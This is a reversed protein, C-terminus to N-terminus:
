KRFISMEKLKRKMAVIERKKLLKLTLWALGSVFLISIIIVPLYNFKKAKAPVAPKEVCPKCPGGCDIGTEDYDQKGDFCYWCYGLESEKIVFHIDLGKEFSPMKIKALIKNTAKDKVYYHVVGCEFGKEVKLEKYVVCDQEESYNRGDKCYCIRKQKGYYTIKGALLEKWSARELKCESWNECYALVCKEIPVVCAQSESPKHEESPCEPNVKVCRREMTGNICPGWESCNWEDICKIVTVQWEVRNSAEGDSVEAKISYSGSAEKFNFGCEVEGVDQCENVENDNLYFKMILSDNDADRAKAYFVLSDNEQIAISLDEPKYAIIEPAHNPTPTPPPTPPPPQAPALTFPESYIITGNYRSGLVFPVIKIKYTGASYGSLDISLSTSTTNMLFSQNSLNSANVLFLDYYVPSLASDQGVFALNVIYGSISISIVNAKGCDVLKLPRANEDYWNGSNNVCYINTGNYSENTTGIISFNLYPPTTYGPIVYYSDNFSDNWTYNSGYGGAVFASAKFYRCDGPNLGLLAELISCNTIGLGYCGQCFVERLGGPAWGCAPNASDNVLILDINTVGDVNVIQGDATINYCGVAPIAYIEEYFDEGNFHMPSYSITYNSIAEDFSYLEDKIGKSLFNNLFISNNASSNDVYLDYYTSNKIINRTLINNSSALLIIGYDNSSATNNTLINNNSWVVVDIGYTNSNVINNILTNNSSFYGLYIGALNNSNVTNNTFISNSVGYLYIGEFFDTIVCNKITNNTKGSLDIGHDAGSDDGDIKHGQCDFIKNSFNEPNNICTGAFNTIDATLLVESCAPDNLQATCNSCSDCYCPPIGLPAFISFSTINAYVVNNTTDVGNITYFGENYWSDNYKWIRLSAESVSDIESEDYSINLFLWSDASNNTANVYKSINYWGAPDAAPASANRLAIDKGEFSVIPGINLNTIINGISDSESYFDWDSNNRATNNILINSSSSSLYIGYMNSNATNNTLINSSTLLRIGAGNFNFESNNITHNGGGFIVLGFPFGGNNYNATSNIITINNSGVLAIGIANGSSTLNQILLNDSFFIRVANNFLTESGKVTVNTINSGTANCMILDSFEQNVLNVPYNYVGCLRDGSCTNNEFINNLCNEGGISCEELDVYVNETNNAITSNVAGCVNIGRSNNNAINNTVINDSSSYGLYIGSGGNSNATNSILNNNSSSGLYIGDESNSSATNNTLTNNSSSDLYIGNSNSSATNNILTNNSSYSLDIGFNNNLSANNNILTNNSSYSLLIGSGIYSLDGKNSNATNNILTNNSSSYLYIGFYYN